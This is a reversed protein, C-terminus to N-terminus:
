GILESFIPGLFAFLVFVSIFLWMAISIQRFLTKALMGAPHGEIMRERRAQLLNKIAYPKEDGEKSNLLDSLYREEDRENKAIVVQRLSTTFPQVKLSYLYIPLAKPESGDGEISPWLVDIYNSNELGEVWFNIEALAGKRSLAAEIRALDDESTKIYFRVGNEHATAVGAPTRDDAENTASAMLGELNQFKTLFTVEPKLVQREKKLSATLGDLIYRDGILVEKPPGQHYLEARLSKQTEGEANSWSSISWESQLIDFNGLQM